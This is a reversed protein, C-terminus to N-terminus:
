PELHLVRPVERWAEVLETQRSRLPQVEGDIVLLLLRSSPELPDGSWAALDARAGDRLVGRDSVGFLEAPVRTIAAIADAHSMGGRVANGAAFRLTRANHTDGGSIAVQVGAARLLAANDARGHLQDVSGAGYVFPDIVVGVKADALADALLWGEAAGVLITRIKQERTLRLVAEIDSARDAHVVLPLEGSVV